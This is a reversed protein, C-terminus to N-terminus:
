AIEGLGTIDVLANIEVELAVVDLVVTHVHLTFLVIVEIDPYIWKSRIVAWQM